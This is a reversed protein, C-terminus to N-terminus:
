RKILRVNDYSHVKYTYKKGNKTSTRTSEYVDMKVSKYKSKLAKVAGIGADTLVSVIEGTAAGILNFYSLIYTAIKVLSATAEVGNYITETSITKTGIFTKTAFTSVMNDNQDIEENPLNILTDTQSSYLTNNNNDRIYFYSEGTQVETVNITTVNNETIYSIIADEDNVSLVYESNNIYRVSVTVKDDSVITAAQAQSHPLVSLTLICVLMLSILRKFM